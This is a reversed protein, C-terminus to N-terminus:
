KFYYVEPHNKSTCTKWKRNLDYGSGSFRYNGNFVGDPNIM